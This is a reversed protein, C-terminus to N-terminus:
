ILHLLLKQPRAGGNAGSAPPCTTPARRKQAFIPRSRSTMRFHRARWPAGSAAPRPSPAATGSAPRSPRLPPRGTLFSPGLSCPWNPCASALRPRMSSRVASLMQKAASPLQEVPWRAHDIERLVRATVPLSSALLLPERYRPDYVAIVTASSEKTETEEKAAATTLVLDAWIEARLTV